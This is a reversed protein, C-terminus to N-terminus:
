KLTIKILANPYDKDNKDVTIEKITEPAITKIEIYPKIEGNVM